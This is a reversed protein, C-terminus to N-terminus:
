RLGYIDNANALLSVFTKIRRDAEHKEPLCRTDEPPLDMADDACVDFQDLADRAAAWARSMSPVRSYLREVEYGWDMRQLRWQRSIKAAQRRQLEREETSLAASGGGALRRRDDASVQVEQLIRVISGSFTRRRDADPDAPREGLAPTPPSGSAASMSSALQVLDDVPARLEGTRTLSQSVAAAPM